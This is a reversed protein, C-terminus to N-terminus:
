RSHFYRLSKLFFLLIVIYIWKEWLNSINLQWILCIQRLSAWWQSCSGSNKYFEHQISLLHLHWHRCEIREQHYPKFDHNTGERNCRKHRRQFQQLQHDTQLVCINKFCKILTTISQRNSSCQNQFFKIIHMKM